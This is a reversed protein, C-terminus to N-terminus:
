THGLRFSRQDWWNFNRYYTVTLWVIYSLHKLDGLSEPFFDPPCSRLKLGSRHTKILHKELLLPREYSATSLKVCKWNEWWSEVFSCVWFYQSTLWVCVCVWERTCATNEVWLNGLFPQIHHNRCVSSARYCRLEQLCVFLFPASRTAAVPGAPFVSEPKLPQDIWLRTM